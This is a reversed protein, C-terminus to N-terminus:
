VSSHSLGLIHGAVRCPRRLFAQCARHPPSPLALGAETLLRYLHCLPLGMVSAYCGSIRAVPHFDADQVAYGGAKDMPEGSAVYRALEEDGYRRMWVFSEVVDQWHRDNAVDLLFLATFVTHRRGRLFRLMRVAEEPGSPKGLVRGRCVVITDSALVLGRGVKEAVTRAKAESLRLTMERPSELERATEEVQPAVVRFPLGLLALLKRRRPSTSALILGTM